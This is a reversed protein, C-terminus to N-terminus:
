RTADNKHDFAKLMEEALFEPHDRLYNMGEETFRLRVFRENWVFTAHMEKIQDDPIDITIDM